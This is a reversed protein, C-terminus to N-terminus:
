EALEIVKLAGEVSTSVPFFRMLRGDAEREIEKINAKLQDKQNVGLTPDDGRPVATILAASKISAYHQANSLEWLRARADRVGSSQRSANIVSFHLVAKSSLYGFKVLQGGEMLKGSKNFYMLLDPRREMIAEKVETVFRKNTDEQSPTDSEDLDDFSDLNALSSHLLAIQRMLDNFSIAETERYKGFHLGFIEPSHKAIEPFGISKILELAIALAENIMKKPNASQKGYLADLVDDRIIKQHIFEGEYNAVVGVMLREGTGKVPEWFLPIWNAKM